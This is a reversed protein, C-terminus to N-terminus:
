YLECCYVVPCFCLLVLLGAYSVGVLLVVLLVVYRCVVLILNCVLYYFWLFCECWFGCLFCM